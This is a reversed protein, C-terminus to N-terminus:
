RTSAGEISQLRGIHRLLFPLLIIPHPHQLCSTAYANDSVLGVQCARHSLFSLAQCVLGGWLVAARYKPSLISSSHASLPRIPALPRLTLPWCDTQQRGRIPHLPTAHLATFSRTYRSLRPRPHSQTICCLRCHAPLQSSSQTNNSLQSFAPFAFPALDSVCSSSATQSSSVHLHLSFSLETWGLNRATM